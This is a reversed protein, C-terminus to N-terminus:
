DYYFEYQKGEYGCHVCCAKRGAKAVFVPVQENGRAGCKPCRLGGTVTRMGGSVKELEADSLAGLEEPSKFAETKKAM